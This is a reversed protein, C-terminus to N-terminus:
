ENEGELKVELVKYTKELIKKVKEQQYATMFRSNKEFAENLTLNRNFDLCFGKPMSQFPCCTCEMEKCKMEGIKAM